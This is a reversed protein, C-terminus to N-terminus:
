YKILSKGLFPEPIEAARLERQRRRLRRALYVTVIFVIFIVCGGIALSVPIIRSKSHAKSKTAASETPGPFGRSTPITMTSPVLGTTVVFFDLWLGTDSDMTNIIHLQHSGYPLDSFAFFQQWFHVYPSPPAVFTGVVPGGDLSYDSKSITSTNFQM